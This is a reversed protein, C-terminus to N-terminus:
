IILSQYLEFYLHAMQRDSFNNELVNRANLGSRRLSEKDNFLSIVKEAMLSADNPVLYGNANNEIFESIGGVSTSITPRLCNAAELIVLPLGENKSTMMLLDFSQFIKFPQKVTAVFKIPLNEALKVTDEFLEGGGVMILEFSDPLKQCVKRMVEVAFSPNKIDTFRGVWLINLKGDVSLDNKNSSTIPIGIRIVEWRMKRGVGKKMLSHKTEATVAVAASTFKSMMKEISLFVWIRLRGFYGYILHGLFTHVVKPKPSITKAAVRGLVGAKSTYTNIIDPKLAKIITRIEIFARIDDILNLTRHLAKIRILEAHMTNEETYDTENPECHGYAITSKVGLENMANTLHDLFVAPGGTNM